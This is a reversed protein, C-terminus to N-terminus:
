IVLMRAYEAAPLPQNFYLGQLYDCGLDRMRQQQSETEVGEAVVRFGFEKALTLIMHVIAMDQRSSEMQRVYIQDIKLIDLPFNKLHSLSSYGTGFDDITLTVGIEKLQRMTEAVRKPNKAAVEETIELELQHPPMGSVELAERVQDPFGKIQFQQASINIAIALEPLGEKQWQVWQRCAQALVWEGISIILASQEAIPIFLDPSVIEDDRCWRILAEAGITEGSDARVKPQYFLLLEDQILARRLASETSIWNKAQQNMEYEYARVTNGGAQRAWRLAADANRLLGEISDHDVPFYTIGVSCSTNLERDNLKMPMSSLLLLGEALEETSDRNAGPQVLILWVGPAFHFLQLRETRKELETQIWRSVSSLLQDGVLHGFSGTVLQFRDIGILLLATSRHHVTLDRSDAWLQELHRRNPLGTLADYHAQRYIEAQDKLRTYLALLVLLAVVLVGISFGLQLRNLRSVESLTMSAGEAAHGRIQESWGVLIQDANEAYGQAQALHERLVDWDRDGKSMEVDFRHASIEFKEMERVLANVDAGELGLDNLADLSANFQEALRLTKESAAFTATAYLHYLQIVTQNLIGKLDSIARLRPVHGEVLTEAKSSVKQAADQSFWIVLGAVALVFAFTIGLRLVLRSGNSKEDSLIAM